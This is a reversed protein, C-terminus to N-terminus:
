SPTRDRYPCPDCSLFCPWAFLPWTFSAPRAPTVLVLAGRVLDCPYPAVIAAFSTIWKGNPACSGVCSCNGTRTGGSGTASDGGCISSFKLCTGPSARGTHEDGVPSSSDQSSVDVNFKIEPILVDIGQKANQLPESGETNQRFLSQLFPFDPEFFQSRSQVDPKEFCHQRTLLSSMPTKPAQPFNQVICTTVFAHMSLTRIM